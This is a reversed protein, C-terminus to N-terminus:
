SVTLVGTMFPHITCLYNYTGPKTPAKVTVTQGQNITGTDFAGSTTSTFTHASSDKNTVSITEGPTVTFNQPSFKFNQIVLTAGGPVPRTTAPSSTTKPIATLALIVILAIAGVGAAGSSSPRAILKTLSAVPRPGSAEKESQPLLAAYAGLAAVALAELLGAWFGDWTRIEHFSFVTTVRFIEYVVITSAAFGAGALAVLRTPVIYIALGLLYSVIVQLLFLQGVTPIHRYSNFYLSLHEGGTGVLLGGGLSRIFILLARKNKSLSRTPDARM